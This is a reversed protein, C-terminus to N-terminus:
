KIVEMTKGALLPNYYTQFLREELTPIDTCNDANQHYTVFICDEIALGLKRTGKKSIGDSPAIYQVVGDETMINIIGSVLEFFHEELHVKSSIFAGKPIFMERRYMGPAFKHVLPLQIPQEMM